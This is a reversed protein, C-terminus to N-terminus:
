RARVRKKKKRAVTKRTDPDTVVQHALAQRIVEPAHQHPLPTGSARAFHVDDAHKRLVDAIDNRTVM